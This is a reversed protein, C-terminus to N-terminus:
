LRLMRAKPVSERHLRLWPHRLMTQASPRLGANVMLMRECADRASPSLIDWDERFEVSQSKIRDVLVETSAARHPPVGTLMHYVICGLSWIDMKYAQSPLSNTSSELPPVEDWAVEPPM